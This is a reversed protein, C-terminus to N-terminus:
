YTTFNVKHTGNKATEEEVEFEFGQVEPKPQEEDKGFSKLIV